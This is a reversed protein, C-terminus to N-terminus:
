RRILQPRQGYTSQMSKQVASGSRAIEGSIMEGITVNIKRNGRSDTTETTTAKESGYNNIVVEVNSGSSSGGTVAVGLSGNADRKLPMVAEAGAEGLVGLGGSHGFMTPGDFVGGKAYMQVGNNWAGGNAQAILGTGGGMSALGSGGSTLAYQSSGTTSSGKFYGVAASIGMDLLGSVQKQIQLKILDYIMSKVMNGFSSTLDEFSSKGTKAFNVFQDGVAEGFSKSLNKLADFGAAYMQYTQTQLYKERDYVDKAIMKRRDAVDQAADIMGQYERSGEFKKADAIAKEYDADSDALSKKFKSLSQLAAKEEDTKFDINYEDATAKRQAELDAVTKGYNALVSEYAKYAPTLKNLADLAERFQVADIDGSGLMQMLRETGQTYDKTLGESRGMVSNLWEQNDARKKAVEAAEKEQQIYFPQQKVLHNVAENYQEQSKKGADRAIMLSLIADNFEKNYGSSKNLIDNYREISENLERQAKNEAKKNESAKSKDWERGATTSITAVESASLAGGAAKRLKAEQEIAANIAQQRTYTAKDLAEQKEKYEKEFRMKDKLVEAGKSQEETLKKEAASKADIDQLQKSFADATANLQNLLKPDGKIGFKELLKLNDQVRTIEQQTKILDGQLQEKIPTSYQTGKIADWMGTWSKSFWNMVEGLSSLETKIRNSQAIQTDASIKMALAVAAAKDGQKELAIVAEISTTSILGSAKALEILADVPKDKLKAFHKVTEEIAVGADKQMKVATTAVLSIEKSLFGGEKAMAQIVDIAKSTSIGIDNLSNAYAIASEKNLGMSGGTLALSKSLADEQKSVQFAAIGLTTLGVAIAVLAAVVPNGVLKIFAVNLAAIADKFSGSATAGADMSAKFATFPGTVLGLVNNGLTMLAGGLVSSMAVATDKVSKITDTFANRMVARLAEGQVGTQAILGRIQDGQQLLVTLPNQGAALSVAVDGIQPQLARTLFKGQRDEEIKQIASQQKRYTDLKAAAAEGTIGAKALNREYNAVSRAAKESVEVNKDQVQNLTNLVSTMRSEEVALRKIAQERERVSQVDAKGNTKSQMTYYKVVASDMMTAEAKMRAELAKQKQQENKYFLQVANDGATAEMRMRNALAKAKDAESNQYLKVADNMMTAQAQLNAALLRENDRLTKNRLSEAQELANAAAAVKLYENRNEALLQNFKEVGAASKPDMGLELVKGKVEASIRSYESLQKTSLSIGRQALEARQNLRDFEASVSRIAGVSADFPDKTLEKIKELEAIFPQLADEAAGYSRAQQLIAAEGKTFGKVLDGYQNNLKQLLKELPSIKKETDEAADGVETQSKAAKKAAKEQTVQAKGLESTRQQVKGLLDVAEKLEATNVAFKLESLEM